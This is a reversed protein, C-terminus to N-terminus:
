FNNLSRIKITGFIEEQELQLHKQKNLELLGLFSVIIETKDKAKDALEHWHFFDNKKLLQRIEEIKEKISIVKELSKKPLRALANLELAIASMVQELKNKNLQKAPIFEAGAPRVYEPRAYAYNEEAVLKEIGKSAELYRKYMKLQKELDDLSEDEGNFLEPLLARSKIVLLKAAILLFDALVEPQKEPLSDLYGIYQDAVEFLSVTTIDLEEAEILQLLLDLPGEFNDVKIKM